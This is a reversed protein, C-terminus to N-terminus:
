ARSGEAKDIAARLTTLLSGIGSFPIEKQHGPEPEDVDYVNDLAEFADRCAELLYPAAAILLAHTKADRETTPPQSTVGAEEPQM